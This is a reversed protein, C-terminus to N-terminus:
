DAGKLNKIQRRRENGNGAVFSGDNKGTKLFVKKCKGDFCGTQLIDFTRKHAYQRLFDRIEMQSFGPYFGYVKKM